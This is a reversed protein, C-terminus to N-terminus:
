IIQFKSLEDKLDSSVNDNINTCNQIETMDASLGKVIGSLTVVRSKEGEVANSIQNIKNGVHASAELLSATKSDFDTMISELADADQLYQVSAQVFKDYDQLVNSTVYGLLKDSSHALQEVSFVVDNSIEQISNATSRSNDALQRIEEAVVAFGKGAEGARAAEISANLALLNTQSAISLIEETLDKIANVSKSSEVSSRLDAELSSTIQQSETKSSGALTRISDARGKMAAAYSKGSVTAESISSSSQELFLMDQGITNLADSIIDIESCLETTESSLQDTSSTSSTVKDIINRSSNDLSISHGEIRKMIIQLKDLFLNIGFILRGIEDNKRTQIRESLDGQNNELKEILSNLQKQTNMLPKVVTIYTVIITVIVMLLQLSSIIGNHALGDSIDSATANATNIIYQPVGDTNNALEQCVARVSQLQSTTSMNVTITLIFIALLPLMIKFSIHRNM